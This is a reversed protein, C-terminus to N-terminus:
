SNSSNIKVIEPNLLHEYATVIEEVKLRIDNKRAWAVCAEPKVTRQNLILDIKEALDAPDRPNVLYGTEGALIADPAGSETSGLCPVGQSAAELYVLGFGELWKDNINLSPMLFLDAQQYFKLLELEGVRGRFFVQDALKEASIFKQLQLYYQDSPNFHGIINFHFLGAFKHRYLALGALAERLGKGSKIGGVFIIQPVSNAPRQSSNAPPFSNLDLGNTIVKIKAALGQRFAPSSFSKLLHDRTFRSVAIVLDIEQYVKKVLWSCILRRLPNDLLPAPYAYSGHVTLVRRGSFNKLFPLITAYPEAIVHIADPQFESLIPAIKQATSRSLFPNALYRLPDALVVREALDAASKKTVLCLIEHGQAHLEKLLDLSYRSWGDTANLHTTLFLLKM